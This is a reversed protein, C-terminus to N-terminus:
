DDDHHHDRRDRREDSYRNDHHDDRDFRDRDQRPDYYTAKCKGHKNCKVQRQSAERQYGYANGYRSADRYDQEVNRHYVPRGYRDRSVTLRDENGYDSHRYYPTGGRLVVDAVDVLVRVLDNSQAAAPAPVLAAVSLGAALLAPALWHSVAAM